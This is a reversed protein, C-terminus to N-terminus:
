CWFIFECRIQNTLCFRIWCRCFTAGFPWIGHEIFSFSTDLTGGLSFGAFDSAELAVSVPAPFLIALLLSEFTVTLRLWEEPKAVQSDDLPLLMKRGPVYIAEFTFYLFSEWTHLVSVEKIKEFGFCVLNSDSIIFITSACRSFNEFDMYLAFLYNCWIM